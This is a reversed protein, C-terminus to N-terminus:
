AYIIHTRLVLKLETVWILMNFTKERCKLIQNSKGALLTLQKNSLDVTENLM